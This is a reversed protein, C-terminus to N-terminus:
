AIVLSIAQALVAQDHANSPPCSPWAWLPLWLLWPGVCIELMDQTTSRSTTHWVLYQQDCLRINSGEWIKPSAVSSTM